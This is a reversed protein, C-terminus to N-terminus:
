DLSQKFSKLLKMFEEIKRTSINKPNAYQLKLYDEIEKYNEHQLLELIYTAIDIYEDKPCIDIVDLPDLLNVLSLINEFNM